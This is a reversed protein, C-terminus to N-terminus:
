KKGWREKLTEKRGCGNSYAEYHAKNKIFFAQHYDEAPYFTSAPRIFTAVPKDAGFKEQVKVLSTKAAAEQETNHTFIGARYQSGKDCFQGNADLPDINNWFVDLLADYTVKKPDYSVEISEIHGTNGRSVQEYTPNKTTGGTYGSVVESVGDIFKFQPEMCWFCGGAFTAQEIKEEAMAQGGSLMLLVAAAVSFFMRFCKM